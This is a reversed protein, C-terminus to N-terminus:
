YMEEDTDWWVDWYIDDGFYNYLDEYIASLVGTAGELTAEVTDASVANRNDGIGILVSDHGPGEQIRTITAGTGALRESIMDLVKQDFTGSAPRLHLGYDYLTMEDREFPGQALHGELAANFVEAVNSQGSITELSQKNVNSFNKFHINEPEGKTLDSNLHYERTSWVIDGVGITEVVPRRKVRPKKRERTRKRKQKTRQKVEGKVVNLPVRRGRADIPYGEKDRRVKAATPASTYSGRLRWREGDFTKERDVRKPERKRPPTKVDYGPLKHGKDDVAYGAADRPPRAPRKRYLGRADRYRGTKPDFVVGRRKSM